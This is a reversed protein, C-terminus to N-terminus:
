SFNDEKLFKEVKEKNNGSLEIVSNKFTAGCALYSQLKKMIKKAEELTYPLDYIVTVTKGGRKKREIRVKAPGKSPQYESGKKKKSNKKDLNKGTSFVLNEDSM